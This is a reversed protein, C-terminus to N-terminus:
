DNFVATTYVQQVDDLDELADIMRQMREADEGSLETENLAKMTVEATGEEENVEESIAEFSKYGQHQKKMENLAMGFIGSLMKKGQEVQAEDADPDVYAMDVFKEVDDKALYGMAEEAVSSPSSGGCATLLLLCLGALITSIKKM